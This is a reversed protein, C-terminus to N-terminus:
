DYQCLIEIKNGCPCIVEISTLVDGNKRLIVEADTITKKNLSKNVNFPTEEFIVCDKKVIKQMQEFKSKEASKQVTLNQKKVIHDM